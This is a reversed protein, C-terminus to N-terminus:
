CFWRRYRRIIYFLPAYEDIVPVPNATFSIINYRENVIQFHTTMQGSVPIVGALQQNSINHRALYAPALGLMAALYGGASGGSLYIKTSDGGYRVINRFVWAVAAAADELYDPCKAHASSLRYNPAVIAIGRNKLIEPFEKEGAQLGGGHFHVLTIFGPEQVPYYIDLKCREQRYDLDGSGTCSADYYSINHEEHYEIKDSIM